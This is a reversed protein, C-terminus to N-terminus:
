QSTQPTFTMCHSDAVVVYSTIVFPVVIEVISSQSGSFSKTSLVTNSAWNTLSKLSLAFTEESYTNQFHDVEDVRM